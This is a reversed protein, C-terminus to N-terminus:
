REEGWLDLGVAQAGEALRALAACGAGALVDVHQVRQELQALGAVVWPQHAAAALPVLRTLLPGAAAPGKVSMRKTHTTYSVHRPGSDREPETGAPGGQYGM